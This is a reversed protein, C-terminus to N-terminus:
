CTTIAIITMPSPRPVEICVYVSTTWFETLRLSMATAVDAVWSDRDIPAAM